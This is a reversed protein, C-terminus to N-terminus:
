IATLAPEASAAERAPLRIRFVTGSVSSSVLTIEGHHLQAIWRAIALGLGAGGSDTPARGRARESRYFREFIHPQAEVPIGPGRDAVTIDYNNGLQRLSLSVTTGPTTHRIANDVLNVLMRRILEEDGSYPADEDVTVEISVNRHNALVRSARAVEDVLEDLYMPARQLPYNGADARALTFMDDVLRALRETQQEIIQLTERYDEETRHPIQLAVTVATRTTAVPTRLEHSADAMFQRQQAFSSELRSLLENFTGALRGLEDHPNMVPLRGGLNEVGIRRAREAMFMVPSLSHRALIWGVIAAIFLAAPVVTILISRLSALEEETSELDTGAVILYQTRRPGVEARRVAIRHRDDDDSETATYLVPESPPISKPLVLQLENDRGAEALLVGNADYIAVMAQESNLEASTSQAAGVISQGENLDNDLSTIAIGTVATLNEDIRDLLERRLLVHIMLSVAILVVALVSVYWSTLRGRLSNIM